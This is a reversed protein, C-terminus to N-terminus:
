AIDLAMQVFTGDCTTETVSEPELEEKVVEDDGNNIEFIVKSRASVRIIPMVFLDDVPGVIQDLLNSTTSTESATAVSGSFLKKRQIPLTLYWASSGGHFSSDSDDEVNVPIDEIAIPLGLTVTPTKLADIMLQAKEAANAVANERAQHRYETLESTEYLPACFNAVGMELVSFMLRAFLKLCEDELRIRLIITGVHLVIKEKERVKEKKQDARKKTPRGGRGVIFGDENDDDEGDEDDSVELGDQVIAVRQKMGLSDSMIKTNPIGLSIIKERVNNLLALTALVAEHFDTREERVAFSVTVTDPKVEIEDEGEVAITRSGTLTFINTLLALGDGNNDCGWSSRSAIRRASTALQKRPAIGGTSRRATQRTRAM